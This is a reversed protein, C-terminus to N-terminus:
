PIEWARIVCSPAHTFYSVTLRLIRYQVATNQIM